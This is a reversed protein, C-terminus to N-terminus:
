YKTYKDVLPDYMKKIQKETFKKQLDKWWKEFTLNGIKASKMREIVRRGRDERIEIVEYIFTMKRGRNVVLFYQLDYSDLFFYQLEGNSRKIEPHIYDGVLFRIFKGRVTKVSKIKEFQDDQASVSLNFLCIALSFFLSIKLLKNNNM